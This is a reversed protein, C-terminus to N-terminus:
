QKQRKSPDPQQGTADAVLKMKTKKDEVPDLLMGAIAPVLDSVVLLSGPKLGKSLVSFGAQTFAVEVPQIVLRNDEGVVYVKGQRVAEAPVALQGEIPAGQLKVEVFTGRVLPPRQGPSAQQYPDAVSAVIGVSQTAADITGSVRTVKAPWEVTHTGANLRITADLGLAGQMPSLASPTGGQAIQRGAILPRLSGIPFQAEVEAMDTGDGQFLTQGKSAYQALDANVQTIRVDFPATILTHSLDLEALAYQSALVERDAANVALNNKLNQVQTEGSLMQREAAELSTKSVAGKAALEKKRAYDDRLLKLDREAIALSAATTKDKIESARMQADIQARNLRYSAEDIRLVEEGAAIQKGNELNPSVWVIPGAVEAVASWVRGPQAAGYGSVHPVVDLKSVKIVRVKAAREERTAPQPGSKIMTAAFLAAIGILVPPVIWFKQPLARM